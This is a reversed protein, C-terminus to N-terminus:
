VIALVTLCGILRRVLVYQALLPPTVVLVFSTLLEGDQLVNLTTSGLKSHVTIKLCLDGPQHGRGPPCSAPTGEAIEPNTSILQADGPDLLCPSDPGDTICGITIMNGEPRLPMELIGGPPFSFVSLTDSGFWGSGNGRPVQGSAPSFLSSLFTTMCLVLLVLLHSM